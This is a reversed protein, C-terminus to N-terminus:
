CSHKCLAIQQHARCFRGERNTIQLGAEGAIADGKASQDRLSCVELSNSSRATPIVQLAEMGAKRPLMARRFIEDTAILAVQLRRWDSLRPQRSPFDPTQHGDDWPLRGLAAMWAVLCKPRNSRISQLTEHKCSYALRERPHRTVIAENQM